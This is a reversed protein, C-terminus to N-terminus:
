CSKAYEKFLRTAEEHDVGTSWHEDPACKECRRPEHAPFIYTNWLYATGCGECNQDDFEEPSPAYAHRRLRRLALGESLKLSIM